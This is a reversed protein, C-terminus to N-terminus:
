PARPTALLNYSGSRIAGVPQRGHEDADWLDYNHPELLGRVAEDNGIGVECLVIPRTSLLREAGELALVEAGEIDIKVVGPQPMTELLDDLSVTPVVQTERVGGMQTSGFGRLANTSRNRRAIHFYALGASRSIAVPIIRLPSATPPLLSASRRILQVNWADAEVAVVLGHAGARHASAISFLGINGGIDWVVSDREVLEEVQRLLGPDVGSLDRRLYRLGAESSLYLKAAEFPKPLRRPLVLWHTSQEFLSRLGSRVM